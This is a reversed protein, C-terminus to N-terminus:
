KQDSQPSSDLEIPEYAPWHIVKVQDVGAVGNLDERADELSEYFEDSQWPRSWVGGTKVKYVAPAMLKTKPKNGIWEVETNFSAEKIYSGCMNTSDTVIHFYSKGIIRLVDGSKLKVKSKETGLEEKTLQDYVEKITNM